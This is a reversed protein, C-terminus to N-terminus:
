IQKVDVPRWAVPMAAGGGAEDVGHSHIPMPMPAASRTDATAAISHRRACRVAAVSASEPINPRIFATIAGNIADKNKLVSLGFRESM